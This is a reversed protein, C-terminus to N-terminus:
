KTQELLIESPDMCRVSYESYAPANHMTYQNCITWLFFCLVSRRCLDSCVLYVVWLSHDVVCFCSLRSVCTNSIFYMCQCVLTSLGHSGLLGHRGNHSNIRCVDDDYCQSIM